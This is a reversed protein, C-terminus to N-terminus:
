FLAYCMKPISFNEYTVTHGLFYVSRLAQHGKSHDNQLISQRCIYLLVYKLLKFTIKKTKIANKVVMQKRKIEDIDDQAEWQFPTHPKPVFSSASVTVNVGRGKARGETRYFENVVAQRQAKADDINKVDNRLNNINIESKLIINVKIM